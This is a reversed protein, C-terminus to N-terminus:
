ELAAGLLKEVLAAGVWSGVGLTMYLGFRLLTSVDFPWERVREVLSQYAVLNALRAPDEATAPEALAERIEERLRELQTRKAEAIRRHVGRVPVCLAGVAIVFLPVLGLANIWNKPGPGLWFLAMLSFWIAWCLVTHLGWQVLPALPRLDLLDLAIDREGLRSLSRAVHLNAFLARGLLWGFLALWVMGGPPFPAFSTGEMGVGLLLLVFAGVLGAIWRGRRPPALVVVVAAEAATSGGRLVPRLQAIRRRASRLGLAALTLTYGLLVARLVAEFWGNTGWLPISTVREPDIGPGVLANVALWSLVFGVGLGVALLALRAPRDRSVSYSWLGAPVAASSAAHESAAQAM